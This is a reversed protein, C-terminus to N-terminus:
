GFKYNSGADSDMVIDDGIWMDKAVGIGGAVTLAATGTASAETVASLGVVGAASIAIANDDSASGITAGDDLLLGTM